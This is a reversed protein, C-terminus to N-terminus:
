ICCVLIQCCRLKTGAKGLPQAISVIEERLDVALERSDGLAAKWSSDQAHVTVLAASLLWCVLSQAGFYFYNM